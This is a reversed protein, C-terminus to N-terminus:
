PSTVRVNASGFRNGSPDISVTFTGTANLTQTSLNFNASSSISSTQQSGDPKLLKVTVLGILNNTFRVTVQQGTTGTFTVKANQGPITTAIGIATANITMSAEADAPVEYLKLNVSATNFTNPDVFVTYTGTVPLIKVDIFGVTNHSVISSALNTGDPKRITVSLIGNNTVSVGTIDMSVRQNIVGEFTLLANQGATTTSVTVVSGGPVIPGSVDPPVNFLTLTVSGTATDNPDVLLTYTGTVPLTKTDIFAGGSDAITSALNTGDPKRIAVTARNSTGGTLVVNTVRLSVRQNATGEFMLKVNQGASTTSVTVPPDGPTISGILDDAVAYLTLTVSGTSTNAPDVLITYAGDAPLTQTDIFGGSASVINSALTTGDPNKIAVTASNTTGGTLAVGSIKLMVRQNTLGVFSLQGNQGPTTTTVTVSSGGPAIPGTVDPPVDYLTLTVSGTNTGQPDVLITYTGTVPLVRTDIFGGSSNIFSNTVLNTGDPKKISVDVLGNGGTMAVGSIKLIIRQDAAGDFTVQINQGIDTTTVTASPGGPVITSIVDASVDNLTLTLSGTTSSRHNVFISYAGTVPLTQTNIFKGGSGVFSATALNTGDPNKIFVDAQGNETLLVDGINLTIRQGATGNFSLQGNQGPVTTTLTVPSGGATINGNFDPPVEYLTLTTSGYSTDRPDVVVTYTGSAPLTQVDFFSGSSSIASISALTVDDPKKITVDVSNSGGTMAVGSVKLSIRQGTTGTFTFVGRQGAGTTTVTVPPGGPTISGTVDPPVDVLRLTMSGVNTGSPDVLITYTGTVPLPPSSMFGGNTNVSTPAILNTGDPNLMSVASSSITVGSMILGVRSGVTGEFVVRANQGSNTTTVTVAPGNVAITAFFDNAGFIRLTASKSTEGYTANITTGSTLEIPLTTIPFTATVAGGSITVTAPVTAMNTNNSSLSVFIGGAPAPNSLRVEGTATNGAGISSPLLTLSQLSTPVVTLLRTQGVGNASASVTVAAPMSVATTVVDFTASTQGAPVTVSPATTAVAPDSSGLTVVTGGAPAPGNLRVTGTSTQGGTLSSPQLELSSPVVGPTVRLYTTSTVGEYTARIAVTTPVAVTLTSVAFTASFGGAPVTVQAPIALISSNGNDLTVTAGGVPAADVLSITATASAGGVLHEPLVSIGEMAVPYIRLAASQILGNHTATIAATAATSVSSTTVTFAGDTAGEPITVSSPVSAATSNSSLAVTAGGTPAPGILSVRAKVANGGLVKGPSLNVSVLSDAAPTVKLVATESITGYSATITVETVASVASTAIVFSKQHSGAEVTVSAPVNAVGTDSSSLNVVTGSEPALGSFLRVMGVSPKGGLVSDPGIELDPVVMLETVAFNNAGSAGTSEVNLTVVDRSGLLVGAPTKVNVTVNIAEGTNLTFASPSIYRIFNEDDNAEIKFTDSAGHNTIQATYSLDRGSYIEESRPATVEVTQAKITKAIVRQYPQGNIDTGTVHVLVPVAPFTVDGLYQRSTDVELNPIESLAVTQLLVGDSTRLEFQASNFQGPSLEATVKTVQGALPLGDIPFYAQHVIGGLKVLDFSSFHLPSEGAVRITFEGGGSVTVTWAGDAPNTISLVNGGSINASSVGPDTAQVTSGDPRQVIASDSGSVSFTVSTLTSDVPVTYTAPTASLMGNIHAIDVSDPRMTFGALKTAEFTETEAIIFVQGGTERAVRFYEPDYPSCSGSLFMTVDVDNKDAASVVNGALGSDKATADTFALLDGGGEDFKELAKSMATFPLEPCDGGDDAQLGAISQLFSNADDTEYVTTAPDNIEVLVYKSPELGSNLRENVILNAGQVVGAIEQSMSGTTDVAFALTPGVGLLARFQKLTVNKKILRIFEKTHTKAVGAATFHLSSHPSESCSTSDKNIGGRASYNQSFDMTGGHSCRGFPKRNLRLPNFEFWATTVAHTTINGTCQACTWPLPCDQCALQGQLNDIGSAILDGTRSFDAVNPNTSGNGSEIWNSHSYFDQIAHLATGLHTRATLLRDAELALKVSKYFTEVRQQSGALEDSTFHASDDFFKALDTNANGDTIQGIAKKMQDNVKTVGPIIGESEILEKIAEETIKVHTMDGANAAWFANPKFARATNLPSFLLLGSISSSSVILLALIQRYTRRRLASRM